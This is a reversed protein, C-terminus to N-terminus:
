TNEPVEYARGTRANRLARIVAAHSLVVGPANQLLRLYHNGFPTAADPPAVLARTRDVLPDLDYAEDALAEDIAVILESLPRLWQYRLSDTVIQLFEAGSLKGAFREVDHREAALIERHLELLASRLSEIPARTV